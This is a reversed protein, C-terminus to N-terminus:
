LEKYLSVANEVTFGYEEFIRNGPASAGWTDITLTLGNLGVYKGWGFSSGAEIALRKTVASPLVQEQYSAEQEDFINQAPMSVVRVHIGESELKDQTDLALKVESGTAIIIGDLEGKAESLIYAGKNVGEQALESTGELVPLNQRTLVLMTPRDTESVARQWAANTENGDAPRIVNLNPM